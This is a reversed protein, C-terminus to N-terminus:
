SPCTSIPGNGSTEKLIKLQIEYMKNPPFNECLPGSKAKSYQLCAIPSGVTPALIGFM